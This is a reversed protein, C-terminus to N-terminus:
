YTYSMPTDWLHIHLLIDWLPIQLSIDWLHIEYTYRMPIIYRMPTDAAINTM